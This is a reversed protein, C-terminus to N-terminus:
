VQLQRNQQAVRVQREMVEEPGSALIKGVYNELRNIRISWDAPGDFTQPRVLNIMSEEHVFLTTFDLKGAIIHASTAAGLVTRTDNEYLFYGSVQGYKLCYLGHQKGQRFYKSKVAGNSCRKLWYGHQKNAKM